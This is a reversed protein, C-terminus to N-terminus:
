ITSPGSQGAQGSSSESELSESSSSLMGSNPGDCSRPMLGFFKAMSESDTMKQLFFKSETTKEPTLDNSM